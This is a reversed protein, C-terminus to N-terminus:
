DSVEEIFDGWALMAATFDEVTKVREFLLEGMQEDTFGSTHFADLLRRFVKKQEYVKIINAMIM